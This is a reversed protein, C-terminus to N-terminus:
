ASSEAPFQTVVEKVELPITNLNTLQFYAVSFYICHNRNPTLEM